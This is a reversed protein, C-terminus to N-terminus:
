KVTVPVVRRVVLTPDFNADGDVLFRRVPYKNAKRCNPDDAHRSQVIVPTPIPKPSALLVFYETAVPAGTIIDTIRFAGANSPALLTEGAKLFGGKNTPQVVVEGNSWVMLLVFHINDRDCTVRLRFLDGKKVATVAEDKMNVAEAKLTFPPADAQSDGTYWASHPLVPRVAAPKPAAEVPNKEAFARPTPGCPMNEEKGLRPWDEKKLAAALANLSRLDEALPAKVALQQAVWDARLFPVPRTLKAKAFYDGLPKARRDDGRLGYAHPYELLILDFPTLPAIGDPVTNVMRVFLERTDWGAHRVDLRFLTATDDVPEAPDRGAPPAVGCWTLAKQLDFEAKKLNPLEADDRILHALSFYRLHPADNARGELDRLMADLTARDDFEVPYGPAAAQIWDKVTKIEEDTPRPRDGPPMSGDELFHVIQSAAVKGPAVFPVPNPGTAVLRPHELVTITGRSAPGGHCEYCHKKLIARAQIALDGKARHTLKPADDGRALSSSTLFFVLLVPTYRRGWRPRSWTAGTPRRSFRLSTGGLLNM